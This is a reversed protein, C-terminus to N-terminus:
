VMSPPVGRLGKKKEETGFRERSPTIMLRYNLGSMKDRQVPILLSHLTVTKTAFIPKLPGCLSVDTEDDDEDDGLKSLRPTILYLTSGEKPPCAASRASSPGGKEGISLHHNFAATPM